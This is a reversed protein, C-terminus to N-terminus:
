DILIGIGYHRTALATRPWFNSCRTDLEILSRLFHPRNFDYRAFSRANNSLWSSVTLVSLRRDPSGAILRGALQNIGLSGTSNTADSQVRAFERSSRGHAPLEYHYRSTSQVDILTSSQVLLLFVIEITKANGPNQENKGKFPIFRRQPTQFNEKAVYIVASKFFSTEVKYRGSSFQHVIKERWKIAWQISLTYTLPLSLIIWDYQIVFFNYM